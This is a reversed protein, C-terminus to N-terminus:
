QPEHKGLLIAGGAWPLCPCLPVARWERLGPCPGGRM